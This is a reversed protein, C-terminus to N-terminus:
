PLSWSGRYDTLVANPMDVDRVTFWVWGEAPKGPQLYFPLAHYAALKPYLSETFGALKAQEDPHTTLICNGPFNWRGNGTDLVFSAQAPFLLRSTVHLKM